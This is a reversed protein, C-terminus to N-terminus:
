RTVASTKRADNQLHAFIADSIRRYQAREEGAGRMVRQLSDRNCSGVRLSVKRVAPVPPPRGSLRACM